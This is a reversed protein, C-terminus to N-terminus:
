CAFKTCDNQWSQAFHTGVYVRVSLFVAKQGELTAKLALSTVQYKLCIM